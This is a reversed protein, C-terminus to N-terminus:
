LTYIDYGLGAPPFVYRRATVEYLSRFRDLSPQAQRTFLGVWGIWASVM